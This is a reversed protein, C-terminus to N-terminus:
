CLFILPVRIYLNYIKINSTDVTMNRVLEILLENKQSSFVKVSVKGRGFCKTVM